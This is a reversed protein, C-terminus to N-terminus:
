KYEAKIRPDLYAYLIDVGLNVISFSVTALIMCGMVMPTDKGKISDVLLRGIGPWSFVMEAAVAGGLMDGFQIGIITIVPILANRLAHKRIIVKKNVGKARATRIYDQRIVELMSSRTMRATIAASGVGLTVAPMIISFPATAGGSPLWGLNVSFLLILLLGLWFSPMSVGLLAVLMSINDVLTYQKTASVIGIPIAILISVLMAWFTLKITAPFVALVEKIVPRRTAYSVGLDGQLLNKMYRIYQVPLPDNLGFEERVAQITADDVRGGTIIDAPDGPTLSLIFFVIFTVGLIVPILMLLRKM